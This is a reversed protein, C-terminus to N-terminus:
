DSQKPSSWSRRRMPGIRFEVKMEVGPPVRALYTAAVKEDIAKKADGDHWGSLPPAPWPEEMLPFIGRTYAFCSMGADSVSKV